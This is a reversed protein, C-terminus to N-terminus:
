VELRILIVFFIRITLLVCHQFDDFSINKTVVNKCGRIHARFELNEGENKTRNSVRAETVKKIRQQGLLHM